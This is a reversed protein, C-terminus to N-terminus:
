AGDTEAPLKRQQGLSGEGYQIVGERALEIFATLM